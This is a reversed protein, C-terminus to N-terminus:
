VTLVADLHAVVDAADAYVARAGAEVLLDREIGGTQVCVCPLGLKGAAAVDFVTDGIVAASAPRGLRELAVEFIDPEPKTAEVDASSVLETFMAPGGLLELYRDIDRQEGSSALAVRVGREKLARLLDVAGPLPEVHDVLGKHSFEEIWLEKARAADEGAEEGLVTPALQDGGMGILHHIRNTEVERGLRRFARLWALVHLPNSDILTGDVDILLAEVM